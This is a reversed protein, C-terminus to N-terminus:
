IADFHRWKRRDWWEMVFWLVEPLLGMSTISAKNLPKSQGYGGPTGYSPTGGTSGRLGKM